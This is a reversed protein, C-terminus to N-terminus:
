VVYLAVALYHLVSGAIVFLHWVTHMYPVRKIAYFITGVTYCLGGALLLGFGRWGLNDILPDLAVVVVWGMALYLAVAFWRPMRRLCVECGIGLAALGWVIGFLSWGWPGRLTVLAFPTYSAAILVYIMAHDIAQAVPRWRPDRLSHYVASGLYLAILAGGYVMSAVLRTADGARLAFVLLLVLGALALLAGVGHTIANLLEERHTYGRIAAVM